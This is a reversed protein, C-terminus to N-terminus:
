LSGEIENILLSCIILVTVLKARLLLKFIEKSSAWIEKLVKSSALTVRKTGGM